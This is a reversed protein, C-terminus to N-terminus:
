WIVIPVISTSSLPYQGIRRQRHNVGVWFLVTLCKDKKTVSEVFFSSSCLTLSLRKRSDPDKMEFTRSWRWGCIKFDCCYPGEEAVMAIYAHVILLRRSAIRIPPSMIWGGGGHEDHKTM